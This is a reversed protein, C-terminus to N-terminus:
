KHLLLIKRCMTMMRIRMVRKRILLGCGFSSKASTSSPDGDKLPNHHHPYSYALFYHEYVFLCVLFSNAVHQSYYYNIVFYWVIIIFGIRLVNIHQHNHCQVSAGKLRQAKTADRLQSLAENQLLDCCSIIPNSTKIYM